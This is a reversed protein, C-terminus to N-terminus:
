PTLGEEAHVMKNCDTSFKLITQRNLATGSRRQFPNSELALLTRLRLFQCVLIQKWSGQSWEATCLCNVFTINLTYLIYYMLFFSESNM